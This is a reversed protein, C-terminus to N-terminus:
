SQTLLLFTDSVEAGNLVHATTEVADGARRLRWVTFCCEAPMKEDSNVMRVDTVPRHRPSSSAFDSALRMVKPPAFPLCWPCAFALWFQLLASVSFEDVVLLCLLRIMIFLFRTM